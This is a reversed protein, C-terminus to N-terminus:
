DIEIVEGDFVTYFILLNVMSGHMVLGRPNWSVHIRRRKHAKTHPSLQFGWNEELEKRKQRKRLLRKEREQRDNRAEELREQIEKRFQNEREPREREM